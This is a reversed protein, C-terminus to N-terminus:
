GGNVVLIFYHQFGVRLAVDHDGVTKRDETFRTLSSPPCDSGACINQYAKAPLADIMAQPVTISGDDASECEIVEHVPMGHGSNDTLLELRVRADGSAPEWTITRDGGPELILSDEGEEGGIELEMAIPEVGEAELAFAGVDAGGAASAALTEGPDVLDAGPLGGEDIYGYETDTLTQSGVTVDGASVHEPYPICTGEADCIGTGVCGDDCAEVHYTWMRCEGSELHLAHYRPRADLFSGSVAAFQDGDGFRAEIADFRGHAPEDPAGGGGGDVPDGGGDPRGGPDDDGGGCAALVSVLM